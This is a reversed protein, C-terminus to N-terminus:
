PSRRGQATLDPDTLLHSVILWKGRFCSVFPSPIIDLRVNLSDTVQDSATMHNVRVLQFMFVMEQDGKGPIFGLPTIKLTRSSSRSM